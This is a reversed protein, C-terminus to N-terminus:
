VQARYVAAGVIKKGLHDIQVKADIADYPVDVM